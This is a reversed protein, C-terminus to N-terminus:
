SIDWENGTLHEFEELIACFTKRAYEQAGDLIRQDVKDPDIGHPYVASLAVCCLTDMLDNALKETMHMKM